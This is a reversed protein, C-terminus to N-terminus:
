AMRPECAPESSGVVKPLLRHAVHMLNFPYFPVCSLPESVSFTSVKSVHLPLRGRRDCINGRLGFLDRRSHYHLPINSNSTHNAGKCQGDTELKVKQPTKAADQDNKNGSSNEFLLDRYITWAKLQQSGINFAIGHSDDYKIFSHENETTRGVIEYGFMTDVFRMGYVRRLTAAYTFPPELVPLRRGNKKDTEELDIIDMVLAGIGVHMLRNTEITSTRRRGNQSGPALPLYEFVDLGLILQFSPSGLKRKSFNDESVSLMLEFRAVTISLTNALHYIVQQLMQSTPIIEEVSSKFHNYEQTLFHFLGSQKPAENGEISEKGKMELVNNSEKMEQREAIFKATLQVGELNISSEDLIMFSSWKWAITFKSIEGELLLIKRYGDKFSSLVIKQPVVKVKFFALSGDDQSLLKAEVKKRDVVLYRSLAFQLIEVAIQKPSGLM